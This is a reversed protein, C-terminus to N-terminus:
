VSPSAPMIRPLRVLQMRITGLWATLRRRETRTKLVDEPSCQQTGHDCGNGSAMGNIRAASM